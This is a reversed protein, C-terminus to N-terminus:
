ADAGFRARGEAFVADLQAELPPNAGRLGAVVREAWLFYARQRALEWGAPPDALISRLNCLKDALKIQKAGTSKHPASTVQREKRVAKALSKDDTCEAVLDAIAVGFERALEEYTADTDEITDHLLAAALVQEDAVGGVRCLAEAVELPHNIYPTAACNKRRQDAHKEAAFRAAHLLLQM